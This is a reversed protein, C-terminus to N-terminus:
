GIGDIRGRQQLNAQLGVAIGTDDEVVLIRM